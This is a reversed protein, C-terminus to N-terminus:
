RAPAIGPAGVLLRCRRMQLSLNFTRTPSNAMSAVRCRVAQLGSMRASAWSKM